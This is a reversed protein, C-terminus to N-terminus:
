QDGIISCPKVLELFSVQSFPSFCWVLHLHWSCSGMWRPGLHVCSIAAWPNFILIWPISFSADCSCYHNSGTDSDLVDEIKRSNDKTRYGLDNASSHLKTEIADINKRVDESLFIKDVNIAKAAALYDSFNKLKEVTYNAQGVIYDLTDSTCSHFKGQGTYLVVCGIIAACTFFILLVLSLAYAKRSYSFNRRRCCCYYFGIIILALGFGLFWLIGILFLTASTFGVSAWYHQDSLNWGGTYHKYDDLPDRRRTRESALAFSTNPLPSVSPSPVVDEAASRRALAQEAYAGRITAIQFTPANQFGYSVALCFTFVLLLLAPHRSASSFAM